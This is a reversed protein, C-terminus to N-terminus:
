GIFYDKGYKVMPGIYEKWEGDAEYMWEVGETYQKSILKKKFVLM